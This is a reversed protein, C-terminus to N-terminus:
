KLMSFMWLYDLTKIFTDTLIDIEYEILQAGSILFSSIYYSLLKYKTRLNKTIVVLATYDTWFKGFTYKDYTEVGVEVVM